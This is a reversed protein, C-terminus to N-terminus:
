HPRRRSFCWTQWTKLCSFLLYVCTFVGILPYAFNIIHNFGCFSGIFACLCIGVTSSLPRNKTAPLLKQTRQLIAFLAAYQSTLVALLIVTMTTPNPAAALLPIAANQTGTVQITTLILGVLITVLCATIIGSLILTRRQYRQAAATILEPFMFCNLGAYLFAWIIGTPLNGWNHIVPTTTSLLHPIATTIILVIIILVIYFNLRSLNQFGFLVICTSIILTVICVGINTIQTIGATMTTFLTLYIMIFVIDLIKGTKHRHEAPQTTTPQQNNTCPKTRPYNLYIELTIIAFMTCGVLAAISWVPLHLNGFFTVIEAGTAFGAGIVSGLFLLTIEFIGM